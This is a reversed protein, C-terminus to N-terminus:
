PVAGQTSSQASGVNGTVRGERCPQHETHILAGWGLPKMNGSRQENQNLSAKHQPQRLIQRLCLPVKEPLARCGAEMVDFAALTVNDQCINYVVSRTVTSINGM